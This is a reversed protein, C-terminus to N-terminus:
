LTSDPRPSPGHPHRGPRTRLRNAPPSLARACARAIDGGADAQWSRAADFGIETLTRMRRLDASHAPATSDLAQQQYGLASDYDGAMRKVVGMVFLAKSTSADIALGPAPVISELVKQAQPHRGARVLALAQDAQFWRTVPHRPSFIQALMEVALTLDPIAEVARGAALLAAGRQRLAAAYRFSQPKTHRAIIAVATRSSELAESTRGTEMQFEALPVSFFGVMRSTPGFVEAADSVAMALHDVGQMADGAEGLARGYLLRGEIIRPHRPVDGFVATANRYAGEAAHLAENPPRNFQYAYARILQAAVSEPHTAGLARLSVDVAEQAAEEAADYRGDDIELHAKNKLAVALDEELGKTVRLTPLLQDLEARLEKTRGSYRYVPTMLVRARLTEIHDPGLRSSGQQIAQTLVDAAAATDQLNLLSTGLINLLEVRLAPRDHLRWDVRSKAQKLWDVATLARGGGNYPSAEQFLTVLVDKVELARAKETLAIHMQWAAVGSGALVTAFVAAVAGVVVRNRAVFRTVRYWESDPRAHVPHNHLYRDIDDALANITDYRDDPRHQLAKRVIAALDGPVARRTLPDRSAANPRAGGLRPRVGTLLEHLIVGSSYVDTAIGLPKGAIQEPSAYAPTLLSKSVDSNPAVRRHDDLLKAIGFDLLKVDGEDTVLINTPKLDRHVILRAHAHAVARAVLLFLQLRSRISLQRRKVYEDIPRGEVYELALYPQGSSTIGADYLRAINHHNLAALIEREQALRDAFGLSLWRGRPLKLAVLRNVMVDTRHALWVTGMGGVALRRLVRYPAITESAPPPDEGSETAGKERVDVKPITALFGSAEASGPALLLRLRPRIADHKTPLSELWGARRDEPLELAEDLLSNLTAWEAGGPDIEPM